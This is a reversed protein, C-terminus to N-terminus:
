WIRTEGGKIDLLESEKSLMDERINQLSQNDM